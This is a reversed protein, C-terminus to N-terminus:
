IHHTNQQEWAEFGIGAWPMGREFRHMWPYLPQGNDPDRLERVDKVFQAPNGRMLAYDPAHRTLVSGGGILAHQGIHLGPMIMSCAAVQAYREVTTGTAENSPPFKDNAFMVRPYVLVFDALRTYQAVFVDSHLWCYNGIHLYGQIDCHTGIRCHHGIQSYERIIVRHGTSFDDGVSCGAYLITHSRILGGAGIRTPPNRYDADTYYASLPEGIVCSDAITTNDGIEVGAYIVTNDGIRVNQGIVADPSIWVNRNNFKM